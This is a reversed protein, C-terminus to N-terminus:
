EAEHLVTGDPLAFSHAETMPAALATETMVYVVKGEFVTEAAYLLGTATEVWYRELQSDEGTQAEVYVCNHGNRSEYGAGTIQSKELALIDEYTPIRQALDGGGEKVPREQWTRDGDYWLAFTEGNVLRVQKEGAATTLETQVYDGDAWVRVTSEASGDEGWFLTVLLSRDYNEPRALTAIVSQVTEPTVELPLATDGGGEAEDSVSLDPLTVEPISNTLAPLGISLFVAALIVIGIAVVVATRNKQEM